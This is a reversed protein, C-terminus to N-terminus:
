VFRDTFEDRLIEDRDVLLNALEHRPRDGRQL